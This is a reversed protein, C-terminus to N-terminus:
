TMVDASRADLRTATTTVARHDLDAQRAVIFPTADRTTEAMLMVSSPKMAITQSAAIAESTAPAPLAPWTASYMTTTM